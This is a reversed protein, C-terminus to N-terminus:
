TRRQRHANTPPPPTPHPPTPLPAVMLKPVTFVDLTQQLIFSKTKSQGQFFTPSLDTSFMIIKIHQRHIDRCQKTLSNFNEKFSFNYEFDAILSLGFKLTMEETSLKCM